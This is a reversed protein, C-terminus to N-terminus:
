RALTVKGKYLRETGDVLKLMVWYVFVAPDLIKGSLEGKVLRYFDHCPLIKALSVSPEWSITSRLTTFKNYETNCIHGNQVIKASGELAFFLRCQM